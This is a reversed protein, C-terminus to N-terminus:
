ACAAEQPAHLTLQHAKISRRAIRNAIRKDQKESECTANGTVPTKKFSRSM